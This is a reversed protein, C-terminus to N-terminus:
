EEVPLSFAFISGYGLRSKVTLSGGHARIIAHAIPLGMGTGPVAHRQAEGRYFKEFILGLESERIGAGRDAVSTIVFNGKLAATIVIAEERQSYKIANELLQVLAKKIRHLDARVPRLGPRLQVSVSRRGFLSQCDKTAADIIEEIAHSKLDLKAGVSLQATEAAEGVLRNLRNTQEDIVVLLENREAPKLDSDTLLATVSAKISTLPTRLEHTVSDLLVTRLDKGEKYADWRDLLTSDNSM